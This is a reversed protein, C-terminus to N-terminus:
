WDGEWPLVSLMETDLWWLKPSHRHDTLMQAKGQNIKCMQQYSTDQPLQKKVGNISVFPEM